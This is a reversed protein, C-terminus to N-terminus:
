VYEAVIDEAHAMQESTQTEVELEYYYPSDSERVATKVNNVGIEARIKDEAIKTAHWSWIFWSKTM